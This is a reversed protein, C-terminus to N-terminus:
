NTPKLVNAAKKGAVLLFFPAASVIIPQFVQHNNNAISFFFKKTSVDAACFGLMALYAQTKRLNNKRGNRKNIQKL